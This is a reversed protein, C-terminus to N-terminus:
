PARRRRRRTAPARARRRARRWASWRCRRRRRTPTRRVHRDAATQDRHRDVGRRDGPALAHDGAGLQVEDVPQDAVGTRQDRRGDGLAAAVLLDGGELLRVPDLALLRHAVLDGLLEAPLHGVDDEVGGAAADADDPDVLRHELQLLEAPDAAASGRSTATCTSPIDRRDDVGELRASSSLVAAGSVAGSANPMLTGLASPSKRTSWATRSDPPVATATVSSAMRVSSRARAAASPEQIQGSPAAQRAAARSSRARPQTPSCSCTTTRLVPAPSSTGRSPRGRRGRARGRRSRAAEAADSVPM